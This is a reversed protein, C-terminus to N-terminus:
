SSARPTVEQRDSMGEALYLADPGVGFLTASGQHLQWPLGIFTLDPIEAMGRVHRPAGRPTPIPLDIWGFDLRYGSTWIVTSIGEAALDLEPVEPQEYDFPM